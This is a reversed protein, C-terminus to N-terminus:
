IHWQRNLRDNKPAICGHCCWATSPSPRHYVAQLLQQQTM